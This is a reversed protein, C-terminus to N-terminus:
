RRLLRRAEIAQWVLLCPVGTLFERARKLLSLGLAVEPGLGFLAGVAIYGGEQVGAGWPVVFAVTRLAFVLSEIVLVDSFPVPHGMFALAVWAEGSGVIWAAFHLGTSLVPRRPDRYIAEIGAHIGQSEDASWPSTLGLKDPLAQLIRFLGKRQAAIFGAMALTAVALGCLATWAIAGGPKQWVLIILGLLPFFLQSIIETTLDVVVSAIAAGSGVGHMTLERASIAEAAAPVVALIHSAGDRLLRGWLCVLTPNRIPAVILARWAPALLLVSAFYVLTMAALGRWGAALFAKGVDASGFYLVLALAATIGALAALAVGAKVRPSLM